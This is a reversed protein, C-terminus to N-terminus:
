ILEQRARLWRAAAALPTSVEQNAVHMRYWRDRRPFRPDTHAQWRWCGYHDYYREAYTNTLDGFEVLAHSKSGRAHVLAAAVEGDADGSVAADESRMNLGAVKSWFEWLDYLADLGGAVADPFAHPDTSSAAAEVKALRDSFRRRRPALADARSTM